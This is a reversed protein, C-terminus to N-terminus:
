YREAKDRKVAYVYNNRKREKKKESSSDERQQKCEELAVQKFLGHEKRDKGYATLPYIQNQVFTNFYRSIFERHGEVPIYTNIYYFVTAHNTVNIIEALQELVIEPYISKAVKIAHYKMAVYYRDRRNVAAFYRRLQNLDPYVEYLDQDNSVLGSYFVKNILGHNM